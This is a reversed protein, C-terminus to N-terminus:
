NVVSKSSDITLPPGLKLLARLRGFDPETGPQYVGDKAGREWEIVISEVIERGDPDRIAEIPTRGKLAPLRLELWDDLQKQNIERARQRVEPNRMLNEAREEEAEGRKAAERKSANLVSEVSQVRSSLYVATAGLRKEIQARIERARNESNVEIVLSKKSIRIQGLITDRKNLWEFSVRSLNGRPDFTAATLLDGRARGMALSALGEFARGASDISFKLTHFEIRDGDKNVLTPPAYLTEQICLYTFRIDDAYRFLDDADIERNQKAIKKRLKRRLEIIKDKMRPPIVTGAFTGMVSHGRLNWIQGYVIDGYRLSNSGLREIVETDGGLLIDRVNFRQGPQSWLVEFFTLPQTIAQDLIRREDASFSGAREIEYARTVLSGRRHAKKGTLPRSPDWQFLFYPMFIPSQESESVPPDPADSLHFDEWALEIEDHFESHAFSMLDRTLRNSVEHQESWLHNVEESRELCCRKYKRGSGCPCPDNRGVHASM